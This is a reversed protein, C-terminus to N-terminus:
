AAGVVLDGAVRLPVGATTESARFVRWVTLFVCLLAPAMLQVHIAGAIPTFVIPTAFALVLASKTGVPLVHRRGYDAVWAIPLALLALDYDFMYPSVALVALVTLAKKLEVAGSRRWAWLVAAALAVAVAAHLGYAVPRPVSLYSLTVFWSPIKPWPLYANELLSSVLPMNHVFAIWPAPGFVLFTAAIFAGASLSAAVFARWNGTVLFLLPLLVGFHPKYVLLGLVAGALWPREDLWVLGFGLVAASLFGNQGHFANLFVAPFALALLMAWRHDSIRRIVLLYLALTAAVFGIYALKYPILALPLTLLAFTPPYHWFYVATDAPITAQEAALIELPLYADAARGQLALVSQGYFTIFDYGFPKGYPDVDAHMSALWGIMGVAFAVVLMVSYNRVRAPTVFEDLTKLQM